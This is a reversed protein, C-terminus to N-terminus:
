VAHFISCRKNRLKPPPAKGKINRKNCAILPCMLHNERHLHRSDRVVLTERKQRQHPATTSCHALVAIHHRAVEWVIGNVIWAIVWYDKQVFGASRYCEVWCCKMGGDWRVWPWLGSANM